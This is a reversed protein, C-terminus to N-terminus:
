DSKSKLIALAILLLKADEILLNIGAFYSVCSILEQKILQESTSCFISFMLGLGSTGPTMFCTAFNSLKTEEGSIHDSGRKAPTSVRENEAAPALDNLRMQQAAALESRHKEELNKFRKEAAAQYNEREKEGDALLRELQDLRAILPAYEAATLDASGMGDMQVSRSKMFDVSSKKEANGHEELRIEGGQHFNDNALM